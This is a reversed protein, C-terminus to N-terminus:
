RWCVVDEGFELEISVPWELILRIWPWKGFTVCGGARDRINEIGQDDRQGVRPKFGIEIIEEPRSDIQEVPRGGPDLARQVVILLRLAATLAFLIAGLYFGYLQFTKGGLPLTENLSSIRELQHAVLSCFLILAM